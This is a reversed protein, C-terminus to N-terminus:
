AAQRRTRGALRRHPRVRATPPSSGPPSPTAEVAVRPRRRRARDGGHQGHQGRGRHRRRLDGHTWVSAGPAGTRPDLLHHYSTGARRWRRVRTSSTALGGQELWCRDRRARGSARLGRGAVADGDPRSVALDGGVSVLASAACSAPWPRRSWTPPSPRAPPASTSRRAARARPRRRRRARDRRWSRPRPRAGPRRPRRHRGPRRLRPRLGCSVLHRGLLPHVLGDRSAPGRRRRRRRGRGAAPRGRDLARGGRQRAVPRLRRPVPQLHPRGRRARGRDAPAGRRARGADRTAVYVYTGLADFTEAPM